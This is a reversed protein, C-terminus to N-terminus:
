ERWSHVYLKLTWLMPLSLANINRQSSPVADLPHSYITDHKSLYRFDNGSVTVWTVAKQSLQPPCVLLWRVTLNQNYTTLLVCMSVTSKFYRSVPWKYLWQSRSKPFTSSAFFCCYLYIQEQHNPQCLKRFLRVTRRWLIDFSSKILKLPMCCNKM